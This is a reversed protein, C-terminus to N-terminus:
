YILEETSSTTFTCTILDDDFVCMNEEQTLEDVYDLNGYIYVYVDEGLYEYGPISLTYTTNKHIKIM